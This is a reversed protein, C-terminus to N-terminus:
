VVLLALLVYVSLLLLLVGQSGPRHERHTLAWCFVFAFALGLSVIGWWGSRHAHWYAVPRLQLREAGVASVRAMAMVGRKAHHMALLQAAIAGLALILAASYRKRGAPMAM